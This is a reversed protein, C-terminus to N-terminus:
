QKVGSILRDTMIIVQANKSNAALLGVPGSQVAEVAGIKGEGLCFIYIASANALRSLSISVRLAPAKPSDAVAIAYRPEAPDIQGPFLSAIHGDEGMSLVVSDFARNGVELEMDRAYNAAAGELEERSHDGASDVVHFVCHATSLSFGEILGKDNREDSGSSVFREDSFWIHVVCGEFSENNRILRFLAIDIAKASAYGTRGGTVVIQARRGERWANAIADVTRAACSAILEDSSPDYLYKM